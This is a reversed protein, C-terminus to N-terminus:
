DEKITTETGTLAPFSHFKHRFKYPSNQLIIQMGKRTSPNMIFPAKLDVTNELYNDNLTCIAFCALEEVDNTELFYLEEKSPKPKYDPCLLLPNIVVFAINPNETSQMLIMADNEESLSLPLFHTLEPFGFFGDPVFILDQEEYEVEGYYDTQIIM